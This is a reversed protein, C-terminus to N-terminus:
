PLTVDFDSVATLNLYQWDGSYDGNQDYIKFDIDYDSDPASMGSYGYVYSDPHSLDPDSHTEDVRIIAKGSIGRNVITMEDADFYQTDEDHVTSVQVDGDPDPSDARATGYVLGDDYVTSVPPTSHCDNPHCSLLVGKALELDPATLDIEQTM